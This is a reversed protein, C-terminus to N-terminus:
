VTFCKLLEMLFRMLCEVKCFALLANRFHSVVNASICNKSVKLNVYNEVFCRSPTLFLRALDSLSPINLRVALNQVVQTGERIIMSRGATLAGLRCIEGDREKGNEAGSGGGELVEWGLGLCMRSCERSGRRM